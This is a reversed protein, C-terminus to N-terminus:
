ASRLSPGMTSDRARAAAPDAESRAQAALIAAALLMDEPYTIKINTPSGRVLLAKRGMTEVAQAEDTCQAAAPSALADRLVRYRFMQPTQAHWLGERAETRAVRGDVDIRKLTSVAALGLLGGVADGDLEALLRALSAPDVCPRVADHVLIWDDDDADIVEDLINHVTAGRTTGGCRSVAVGPRAGIWRDYWADGHAIAVHIDADPLAARLREISHLIVPKGVLPWYQKPADGGCRSGNGAAPILAHVRTVRL